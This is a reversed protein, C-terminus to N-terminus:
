NPKRPRPLRPVTMNDSLLDPPEPPGSDDFTRAIAVLQEQAELPMRKMMLLISEQEQTAAYVMKKEGKGTLLWRPSLQLVRALEWLHDGRPRKSEGTELEAITSQSVNAASALTKQTFGAAKREMRLRDGLTMFPTNIRICDSNRKVPFSPIGISPTLHGLLLCDGMETALHREGLRYAEPLRGDGAPIGNRANMLQLDFLDRFALQEGVGAERAAMNRLLFSRCSCGGAAAATGRSDRRGSEIPDQAAPEKKQISFRVVRAGYAAPAHGRPAKPRVAGFQRLRHAHSGGHDKLAQTPRRGPLTM